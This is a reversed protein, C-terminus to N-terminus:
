SALPAAPETRAVLESITAGHVDGGGYDLNGYLTGYAPDQRLLSPDEGDERIARIVDGARTNEPSRAPQYTVPDTACRTVLKASVLCDLTENLLRVPVNWADAAESVTLGPLGDRFRRAMEVVARVALAERYAYTASTALREMAFTKENQYAFAVLAGFLLIVWSLYIWGMLLPFLAFGSFFPTYRALGIQFKVYAWSNLVWLCGALTGGLIAYRKRVQTNPVLWNLLSMTMCIVFLQVGRLGTALPGLVESFTESELAATIGLVGAAAFPLLLTIVLYDNLVRFWNRNREVGWIANFSTEVNRMLGFVTTLVFLLGSLGLTPLDRAGQEALRVLMQVPDQYPSHPDGNTQGVGQLFFSMISHKLAENDRDREQQRARELVAGNSEPTETADGNGEPPTERLNELLPSVGPKVQPKDVAKQQLFAKRDIDPLVKRHTDEDGRIMTVVKSLREDLQESWRRYVGEGLNFTTIFFFMFTLFPVIFLLTAFTLASARLLLTEEILGRVLLIAVRVNKIILGYPVEEGPRGIHWVDRTVFRRGRELAAFMKEGYQRM